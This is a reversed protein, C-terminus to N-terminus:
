NLLQKVLLATAEQLQEVRRRMILDDSLWPNALDLKALSAAAREVLLPDIVAVVRKAARRIITSQLRKPEVDSGAEYRRHHDMVLAEANSTDVFAPPPHGRERARKVIARHRRNETSSSGPLVTPRFPLNLSMTWDTWKFFSIEPSMVVPIWPIRMADAVIAGHMAETVVLKARAFLAMIKSVPWQPNVFTFGCTDAVRQWLGAGISHHHPMFLILDRRDHKVTLSPVTAILAASDTAAANERDMLRATLPGRLALISWTEWGPPLAGYSAGSGLVFVRKGTTRSLPATTANLISGIGVLIVDPVEFVERPLLAPWLVENLDDGFNGHADKYYLIEM